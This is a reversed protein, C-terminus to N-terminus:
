QCLFFMGLLYPITCVVFYLLFFGIYLVVCLVCALLVGLMGWLSFKKADDAAKQAEEYRGERWLSEVSTAKIIAVIGLPMCFILTCLIALVLNNEPCPRQNLGNM